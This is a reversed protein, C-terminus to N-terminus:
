SAKRIISHPEVFVPKAQNNAISELSRYQPCPFRICAKPEKTAIGLTSGTRNQVSRSMAITRFGNTGDGSNFDAVLAQLTYKVPVGQFNVQPYLCVNGSECVAARAPAPAAIAFSFATAALAVAIRASYMHVKKRSSRNQSLHCERSATYGAHAWQIDKEM